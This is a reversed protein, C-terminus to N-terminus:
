SGVQNMAFIGDRVLEDIGHDRGVFYKATGDLEDLMAILDAQKGNQALRAYFLCRQIFTVSEKSMLSALVMGKLQALFSKALAMNPDHDEKRSEM